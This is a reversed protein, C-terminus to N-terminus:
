VNLESRQTLGRCLARTEGGWGSAIACLEYATLLSTRLWKTLKNGEFDFADISWVNIEKESSFQSANKPRGSVFM